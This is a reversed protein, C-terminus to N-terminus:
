ERDFRCIWEVLGLSQTSAKLRKWLLKVTRLGSDRQRTKVNVDGKGSEGTGVLTWTEKFYM